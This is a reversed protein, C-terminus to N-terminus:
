WGFEEFTVGNLHNVIAKRVYPITNVPLNNFGVWRLDDCKDPEANIIEGSWKHVQIFFDV